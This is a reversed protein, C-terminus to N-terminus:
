AKIAGTLIGQIYYKSAVMFLLFLPISAIVNGAQVQGLQFEPDWISTLSRVAVIVTQMSKDTMTLLPWIFDNYVALVTLVSVTALIPRSLPMAIRLMVSVEGAGDLRAAEMMEEPLSAFFTRMLFIVIVQGGAIYPLILAFYTNGLRFTGTVLLYAPILTMMGPMMLLMIVMYFFFEKAWFQLRAFAYAALSAVFVVGVTSIGAVFISNFMARGMGRYNWVHSYYEFHIPKPLIAWFKQYYQANSKVSLILMFFLPALTLLVMTFLALHKFFEATKQRNRM